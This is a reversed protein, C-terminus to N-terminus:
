EAWIRDIDVNAQPTWHCLSTPVVTFGVESEDSIEASYVYFGDAEPAADRVAAYPRGSRGVVSIIESGSSSSTFRLRFKVTSLDPTLLRGAVGGVGPGCPATATVFGDDQSLTGLATVSQEDDFTHESIAPPVDLVPLDLSQVPLTHGAADVLGASVRVTQTTGRVADWDTFHGWVWSDETLVDADTEVSTWQVQAADALSVHSALGALPESARVELIDWPLLADPLGQRRLGGSQTGSPSLSSPPSTPLLVAAPGAQISPERQDVAVTGSFTRRYVGFNDESGSAYTLEASASAGLGPGARPIVIQHWFCEEYSATSHYKGTAVLISPSAADDMPEEGLRLEAQTILALATIGPAFAPTLRAECGERTSTLTLTFRIAYEEFYEATPDSGLALDYSGDLGDCDHTTSAEGGAGSNGGSGATGGGHAAAAGAAGVDAAGGNGATGGGRAAAAGAVGVDAAGGNGATGGGRAAAAGAVGPEGVEGAQSGPAVSSKSDPNTHGGCAAVEGLGLALLACAHNTRVRVM